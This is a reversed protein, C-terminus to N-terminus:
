TDIERAIDALVASPQRDEFEALRTVARVLPECVHLKGRDPHEFIRCRYDAKHWGRLTMYREIQGYSISASMPVYVTVDRKESNM